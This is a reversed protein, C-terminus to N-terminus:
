PLPLSAKGSQGLIKYSLDGGVVAPPAVEDDLEVKKLQIKIGKDATELKLTSLNKAFNYKQTGVLDFSRGSELTLTAAEVEGEATVTFNVQWGQAAVPLAGNSTTEEKVKMDGLNGSAKQVRELSDGPVSLVDSVSVKLKALLGENALPFSLKQKLEGAKGKLKGKIAGVTELSGNDDLDAMGNGTLEGKPGVTFTYAVDLGAVSTLVTDSTDLLSHAPDDLPSCGAPPTPDNVVLCFAGAPPAFGTQFGIEDSQVFTHTFLLLDDAGNEEGTVAVNGQRVATHTIKALFEGGEGLLLDGGVGDSPTWADDSSTLTDNALETLAADTLLGTVSDGTLNCVPCATFLVEVPGPPVVQGPNPQEIDPSPVPPRAYAITATITGNNVSLLYNGAPMLSALQAESDFSIGHALDDGLQVTGLASPFTISGNNLDTGQVRLEVTYEDDAESSKAITVELSVDNVDAAFVPMAAALSTVAMLLRLSSRLPNRFM